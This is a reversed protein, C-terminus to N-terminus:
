FQLRMSVQGTRPSGFDATSAKTIQGFTSSSIDMNPTGLNTHNLINTFTGEARLSVRETIAFSKSLGGSLNVTGPGVVSGNQFNGFRGIPSPDGAQGRGTHCPTGETWSANGPCAFAAKNFWAGVTRNTPTVSVGAVRDVKQSRGPYAAGNAAANLGSGTGSPDGQGSSFYPSLFPGTQWLMISSIQWGGFAADMLRNMNGGFQKGRGFPLAYLLTTNWRHRRTGFVQGYDVSPDGAWSARSGGSESAFSSSGPGQNDALSKALTYTSDFTLGNTTHHSFNIQGSQYSSDAGTSRTNIVGWNPFPRASLPQNYASVTSSYPLDNLNPAWVLHHTTMGIYSVRLGYGKGLDRDFSLSFQQSYPDKWNIDNATGFYAQGYNVSNSSSGSGAYISPWVYSPGTATKTNAYQTTNAQLTGTLSYFNSGLLTINYLGYGGRIVTRNDDTLRYAFGFRPAFRTKIATRLGSPLGAQSNSVTPTCAAGNQAGVGSSQGLGCSNFSALYPQSVLNGYGDPYVVRGSKAISPDFNGINGTPDHYAPHYEYRLGYSLTLRNSVRWQDQAFAHYHMTKGDNDAQVVDYFTTSPAGILFDAFESGTFTAPSYNFTGYNDAGNFGLPTIAEIRRIDVGFKMTHTGKVWTFNDTFVHTRSKTVSSLRDPNFSTLYNFDLEPLGNYFLNQLGQLGSSETFAKGDYPNTAGNSDFTFGYRFENILNPSFNYNGAILFIRDQYTTTSSPVALVQASNQNYNKWTFRAFILAKQGIYQDGRIDFQNSFLSTDKNTSYNYVGPTYTSVDGVNPDPFFSLFKQAVANIPVVKNAYTGGTFPNSLSDLGVVKSFDGQKMAATPVYYQESTTRPSRYGEYTGFFFTKDHGNYLHPIVVPGGLSAGFDNTVLHAKSLAGYDKANLSADQHYWFLGGHLKNTGAKTTTTVEGPQGFEASNMVGDVRMEAISDGSPFANAIPSNGGTASRTTIGDVTVDTQFPLGGQVSYTPTSNNGGDSQVGPLTQIMSLPSTGSSSARYNAPLDRVAASSLTADISPSDTQITGVDGADVSVEQAINGVALAVDSRLEQRATLRLHNVKQSNFGQATIQLDYQGANLNLFQYNGEQNTKVTKKTATEVSVLDVTADPVAAGSKDKVTGLITGQTSQARLAVASFVFLCVAVLASPLFSKQRM